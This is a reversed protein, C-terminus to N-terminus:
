DADDDGDDEADDNDTVGFLERYIPHDEDTIVGHEGFAIAVLEDFSPVKSWDPDPAYGKTAPRSIYTRRLWILKTWRDIAERCISRASVWADNDKDGDRPHKIPWLRVSSDRYIVTVITAPQAELIRGQMAPAIIYTQEDIAGEPKHVYIETRRRWAEDPHTRFFDKPKGVPIIHHRGSTIGDGLGPDKWLGAFDIKSKKKKDDEV